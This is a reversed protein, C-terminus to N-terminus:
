AGFIVYLLSDLGQKAYTFSLPQLYSHMMKVCKKVFLTFNFFHKKSTKAKFATKSVRRCREPFLLNLMKARLAKTNQQAAIKKKPFAIKHVCRCKDLFLLHLTKPRLDKSNQNM